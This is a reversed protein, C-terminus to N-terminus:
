FVSVGERDIENRFAVDLSRRMFANTPIGTAKAVIQEVGVLNLISFKAEPAIEIAIDVDSDRGATGRAQSGFLLVHTVGEKELLPRVARLKDLLDANKM